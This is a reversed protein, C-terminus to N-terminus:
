PRTANSEGGRWQALLPLCGPRCSHGNRGGGGAAVWTAFMASFSPLVPIDFGGYGYLLTPRQGTPLDARRLVTM